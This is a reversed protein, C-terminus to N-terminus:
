VPGWTIAVILALLVVLEAAIVFRYIMNNLKTNKASHVGLSLSKMM